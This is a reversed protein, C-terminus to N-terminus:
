GRVLLGNEIRVKDGVRLAPGAEYRMVRRTGDDLRVRVERTGTPSRGKEIATISTISGCNPCAAVPQPAPEPETAVGGAVQQAPSAMSVPTTPISRASPLWGMVAATGVIAFGAV